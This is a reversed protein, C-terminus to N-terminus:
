SGSRDLESVAKRAAILVPEWVGSFPPAYSLDVNVLEDVTMENWIAMALADIRKGASPGGVIQAGLLRRSGRDTVVKMTLKSSSPWYSSATTSEFTSAVADFGAASAEAATLGTRALEIEHVKTIATGLVGPFRADGGGINTGAIKGQKNAITGLHFNVPLGSVRHIAEACDGASWVGDVRTRLRDDVAVAGSEGLPVGAEVALRVEPESGLGLLVIDAEHQHGVCQVKTVRGDQGELREVRHGLDIHLGADNLLSAALAGLDADLQPQLVGDNATIVATELGLNQFAEAMELGIYGGGIVVAHRAGDLAFQRVAEADDLTRLEYVGRLACGPVPRKASAGTTYMLDDYPEVFERDGEIDRVTVERRNTDIGVVEHHLRVDIDRIAHQQPTRAILEDLDDVQGGVFFPEGCASYSVYSSREFAVISLDSASRMRRAQSAASMGAADGGIVVLRDM